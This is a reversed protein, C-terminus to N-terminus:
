LLDFQVIFGVFVTIAFGRLGLLFNADLRVGLVKFPSSNNQIDNVIEDIIRDRIERYESRQVNNVLEFLDNRDLQMRERNVTNKHSLLHTHYAVASSVVSFTYGLMICSCILGFVIVAGHVKGFLSFVVLVIITCFVLGVSVVVAYLSGYIPLVCHIYFKRLEWWGIIDRVTKSQIPHALEHMIVYIFRYHYVVVTHVHYFYISLLVTETVCLFAAFLHHRAEIGSSDINLWAGEAIYSDLVFRVFISLCIDVLVEGKRNEIKKSDKWKKLRFTCINDDISTVRSGTYRSLLNAKIEKVRDACPGNVSFYCSTAIFTSYGIMSWRETSTERVIMLEYPHVYDVYTVSYTSTFIIQIACHFLISAVYTLGFFKREIDFLADGTDPIGLLRNVYNAMSMSKQSPQHSDNEPQDAATTTVTDSAAPAVHSQYAALILVVVCLAMVVGCVAINVPKSWSTTNDSQIVSVTVLVASIIFLLPVRKHYKYRKVEKERKLVFPDGLDVGIGGNQTQKEHHSTDHDNSTKEEMKDGADEKSIYAALETEM